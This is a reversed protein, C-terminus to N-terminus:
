GVPLVLLEQSVGKGAWSRPSGIGAPLPGSTGVGALGQGRPAHVGPLIRPLGAQRCRAHLGQLPGGWSFGSRSVGLAAGSVRRGSAEARPVAPEAPPLGPGAPGGGM